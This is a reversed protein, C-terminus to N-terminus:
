AVWVWGALLADVVVMGASFRLFWRTRRARRVSEVLSDFVEVSGPDAVPVTWDEALGWTQPRRALSTLEAVRLASQGDARRSLWERFGRTSVVTTNTPGQRIALRRYGSVVLVPRASLDGVVLGLRESVWQAQGQLRDIVDTERGSILLEDKMVLVMASQVELTAIVFVGTPGILLNHIPAGDPGPVDHFSLFGAPQGKILDAVSRRSVTTEFALALDPLPHRGLLRRHWPRPAVKAALEAVGERDTEALALDRPPSMEVPPSHHDHTPEQQTPVPALVTSTLPRAFAM